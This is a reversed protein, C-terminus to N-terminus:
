VGIRQVKAMLQQHSEGERPDVKVRSWCHESPWKGEIQELWGVQGGAKPTKEVFEKTGM